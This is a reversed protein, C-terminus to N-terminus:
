EEGDEDEEDEGAGFVGTDIAKRVKRLLMERKLRSLRDPFLKGNLHDIEHQLARAFLGEAPFEFSKLNKDLARVQIKLARKVEAKFGPLSLCGEEMIEEDEMSVIEPNIFVHLDKTRSSPSIDVVALKLAKGVQNAALGVGPAAYMTHAMQDILKELGYDVREIPRTPKLLVPEPWHVIQLINKDPKSDNTTM